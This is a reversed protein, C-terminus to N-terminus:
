AGAHRPLPVSTEHRPVHDARVDRDAQSTFLSHDAAVMLEQSRRKQAGLHQRKEVLCYAATLHGPLIGLPLKFVHAPQPDPQEPVADKLVDCPFGRDHEPPGIGEVGLVDCQGLEVGVRQDREVPLEGVGHLVQHRDCRELRQVSRLPGQSGYQWAFM